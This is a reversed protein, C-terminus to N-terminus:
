KPKYECQRCYRCNCYCKQEPLQIQSVTKKMRKASVSAYGTNDCTQCGYGHCYPCPIETLSIKKETIKNKMNKRKHITLFDV